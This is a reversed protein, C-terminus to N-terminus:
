FGLDLSKIKITFTVSSQSTEYGVHLISNRVHIDVMEFIMTKGRDVATGSFTRM